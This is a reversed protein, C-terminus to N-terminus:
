PSTFCLGEFLSFGETTQDSIVVEGQEGWSTYPELMLYSGGLTGDTGLTSWLPATLFFNGDTYDESTKVGGGILPRSWADIPTILETPNKATPEGATLCSAFALILTLTQRM